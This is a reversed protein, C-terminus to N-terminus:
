HTVLLRAAEEKAQDETYTVLESPQKNSLGHLFVGDFSHIIFWKSDLHNAENLIDKAEILTM